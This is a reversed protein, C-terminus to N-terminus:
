AAHEAAYFEAADEEDTAQTSATWTIEAAEPFPQAVTLSGTLRGGDESVWGEQERVAVSAHQIGVPDGFFAPLALVIDDCAQADELSLRRITTTM